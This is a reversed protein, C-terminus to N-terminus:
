VGIVFSRAQIRNIPTNAVYVYTVPITKDAIHEDTITDIQIYWGNTAVLDAIDAIGTLQVISSIESSTLEAGQVIIGSVTAAQMVSSFVALVQGQGSKGRLSLLSSGTLINIGQVQLQAKIYTEGLAVSLTEFTSGMVHGEGYLTIDQGYGGTIYVTNLRDTNCQNLLAATTIADDEYGAADIFNINLAGNAVGYDISAIIAQVFANINTHTGDVVRTAILSETSQIHSWLDQNKMAAISADSMCAVLYYRNLPYSNIVQMIEHLEGHIDPQIIISSDFSITVYDGNMLCVENIAEDLSIAPEYAEFIAGLSMTLKLLKVLDNAVDQTFIISANEISVEAPECKINKITLKSVDTRQTVENLNSIPTTKIDDFQKSLIEVNNNLSIKLTGSATTTSVVQGTTINYNGSEEIVVNPTITTNTNTINGEFVNYTEVDNILFQINAASNATIIFNSSETNYNVVFGVNPFATQLANNIIDGAEIFNVINSLDCVVDKIEGDVSVRLTGNVKIDDLTTVQGGLCKYLKATQRWNYFTLKQPKTATKSSYGFFTSAYEAQSSGVGYRAVVDQATSYTEFRDGSSVNTAVLANLRGFTAAPKVTTTTIDVFTSFPINGSAM